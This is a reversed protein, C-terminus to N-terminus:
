STKERFYIIAGILILIFGMIILANDPLIGLFVLVAGAIILWLKLPIEDLKLLKETKSKILIAIPTM